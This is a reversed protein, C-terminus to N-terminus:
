IGVVARFNLQVGEVDEQTALNFLGRPHCAHLVLM